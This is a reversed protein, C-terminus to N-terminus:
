TSLSDIISQAAGILEDAQADPLSNGRQAEVANSFAQLANIAAVDNNNNIDDLAQLAAGLKADLSNDVGQQLNFGEILDILDQIAEAPTRVTIVATYDTFGGDKDEIRGRAAFVGSDPYNCAFSIASSGGQEFPGDNTCDYSYSFGVATDAIGPDVQNSFLLTASQGEIITGTINTFSATPAVNLVAVETQHSASLGGDDIVQVAISHDSPGDLDAASFTASQGPTEFTGNHDLDWAYSLPDEDPDDGSAVVTVFGGEDVSYPGNAEVLPPQNLPLDGIKAVFIDMSGNLNSQLPNVTHFNNSLTNGTVYANGARDVSIYGGGDHGGGGLYTSYQLVTGDANLKSIFASYGGPNGTQVADVTPFSRSHTRGSVYASGVSDVAIDFGHDTGSAGLYTSYILEIGDTSLKAVFADSLGWADPRVSQIVGATTPFSVSNTSGTLYIRGASDVAIGSGYENAEGGLYTSYLVSAGDPNLKVVFVDFFGAKTPQIPNVTPFDQSSTRGILYANGAPDVYIDATLDSYSGGYYTSYVFAGGGPELKTIFADPNCCGNLTSQLPNHVPFDSSYTYGGVYANGAGDAGLGVTTESATGGLYTSYILTAGDSSIKAVFADWDGNLTPQLPNLTPFDASNTNGAVYINGLTDLAIGIGVDNGSGGLYTSYLITNGDPNLKVVVVDYSGSHALQLPGATPFDTSSTSGILYANGVSDVTIATAYDNGGGGIYTSYSLVPDIILPQNVDYGGVYFGVQHNDRLVYGGSVNQRAGVKEQQYMLPRKQVVENDNIQLILNGQSDIELKEAGQFNLIIVSPDAGPAVIFDYELQRQNGYYILDVGRYVDHYVVKAYTPINTRWKEPDSGFFYNVKGPLKDVRSIESNPNAGVLQMRLIADENTLAEGTDTIIPKRLTLVAETGSLDLNYGSGRSLFDIQSDTQGQNAEFSLPIQSLSELISATAYSIPPDKFPSAPLVRYLSLSVLLTILILVFVLFSVSSRKPMIGYQRFSPDYM